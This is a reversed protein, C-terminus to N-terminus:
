WICDVEGSAHILKDRTVLGARHVIATAAIIRDAPDRPFRASLNVAQVAISSTVPLVEFLDEVEELFAQVSTTVVVKGGRFLMALEWLSKDSIALGSERRAQL